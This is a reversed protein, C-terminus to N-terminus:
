KQLLPIADDILEGGILYVSEILDEYDLRFKEDDSSNKICWKLVDINGLSISIDAISHLLFNSEDKLLNLSEIKNRRVAYVYDTHDFIMMKFGLKFFSFNNSDIAYKKIHKGFSTEEHYKELIHLFYSLQNIKILYEILFKQQPISLYKKRLLYEPCNSYPDCIKRNIISEIEKNNLINLKHLEDIVDHLSNFIGTNDGKSLCFMFCTMSEPDYGMDLLSDFFTKKAHQRHLNLDIPEKPPLSFLTTVGSEDTCSIQGSVLDLSVDHYQRIWAPDGIKELSDLSFIENQKYLNLYRSETVSDIKRREPYQENKMRFIIIQAADCVSTRIGKFNIMRGEKTYGSIDEAQISCNSLIIVYGQEFFSKFDEKSVNHASGVKRSSYNHVNNTGTRMQQNAEIIMVKMGLKELMKKLKEALTTKGCGNPGSIVFITGRMPNVLTKPKKTFADPCDMISGNLHAM